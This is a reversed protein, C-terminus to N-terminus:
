LDYNKRRGGSPGSPETDGWAQIGRTSTSETCLSQLDSSGEHQFSSKSLAGSAHWLGKRNHQQQHCGCLDGQRCTHMKLTLYLYRFDRFQQHFTSYHCWRKIKREQQLISEKTRASVKFYKNKNNASGASKTISRSLNKNVVSAWRRGKVRARVGLFEDRSDIFTLDNWIGADVSWQHRLGHLNYLYKM